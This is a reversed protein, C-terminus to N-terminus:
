WFLKEGLVRGRHKGNHSSRRDCVVYILDGNGDTKYERKRGCRDKLPRKEPPKPANAIATRCEDCPNNPDCYSM